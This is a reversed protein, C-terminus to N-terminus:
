LPLRVTVETFETEKSEIIIEGGHDIIINNSISLGLGTGENSQKTTFFPSKIKEVLKQPIGIGNDYFVTHIYPKDNWLISRCTVELRKKENAAPYRKNLAYRANQIINMFVQRIEQKNVLVEPLDDPIDLKLDIGEKKLQGEILNLSNHIIDEISISTKENIDDRSFSLLSMVIDAIRESENIIEELYNKVLDEDKYDDIILQAYNMIGHIPNNVEHAVGAALEGITALQGARIVESQHRLEESIDRFIAQVVVKSYYNITNGSINVPVYEDDNRIITAQKLYGIGNHIIENFKEIYVELDDKSFLLKFNTKLLDYKAYGFLQEAKKNAEILNGDTDFLLIADGANDMLTRYKEESERIAQEMKKTETIDLMLGQLLFPAGDKDKVLDAEDRFWKVENGRSIMRYESKFPKGSNHCSSVEKLVGERDDPHLQERWIQPNERYEKQSFGIMTEIQPSVYLTTSSEDLAAIYTIAPIHEVLTRYRAESERLANEIVRQETIDNGSSLAGIINGTDEKLVSNQWTIVREEGNKTLISNEYNEFNGIEGSILKDFVNKVREREYYPLFTDFWNRGIIESEKCGLIECGKKNILLVKQDAGIVVFIVGAVDIYMQTRDREARLKDEIIFRHRIMVLIAGIAIIIITIWSLLIILYLHDSRELLHRCHEDIILEVDKAKTMLKQFTEDLQQDLASGVGGSIIDEYRKLAVNNFETLLIQVKRLEKLISEDRMPRKIAGHETDGGDRIVMLLTEAKKLRRWEKTMEIHIDGSVYEEFWLHFNAINAQLDLMAYNIRSNQVHVNLNRKTWLLFIISLIGLGLLVVPLLYLSFFAKNAFGQYAQTKNRM